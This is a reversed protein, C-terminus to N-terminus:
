SIEVGSVHIELGAGNASIEIADFENMVQKLDAFLSTNEIIETSGLVSVGGVKLTARLPATTTNSIIINTIVTSTSSPVSYVSTNTQPVNGRFLIKQQTAM